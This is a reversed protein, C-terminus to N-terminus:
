KVRTAMQRYNKSKSKKTLKSAAVRKRMEILQRM